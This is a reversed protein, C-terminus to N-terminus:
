ASGQYLFTLKSLLSFVGEPRRIQNQARQTIDSALQTETLLGKQGFVGRYHKQPEKTSLWM